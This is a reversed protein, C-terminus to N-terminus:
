PTAGQTSRDNPCHPHGSTDNLTITDTPLCCASASLCEWWRALEAETPNSMQVSRAITRQRRLM